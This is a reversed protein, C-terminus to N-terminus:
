PREEDLECQAIAERLKAPLLAESLREWYTLDYAFAPKVLTAERIPQTRKAPSVAPPLEKLVRAYTHASVGSDWRPPLGHFDILLRRAVDALDSAGVARGSAPDRADFVQPVAAGHEVLFITTKTPTTHYEVLAVRLV